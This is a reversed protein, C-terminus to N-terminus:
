WAKIYKIVEPYNILIITIIINYIISLELTNYSKFRTKLETIKNALFIINIVLNYM